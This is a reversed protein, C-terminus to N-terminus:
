AIQDIVITSSYTTLEKTSMFILQYGDDIMDGITIKISYQKINNCIRAWRNECGVVQEQIM